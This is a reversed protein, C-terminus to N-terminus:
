TSIPAPMVIEYETHPNIIDRCTGTCRAGWVTGTHNTQLDTEQGCEECAYVRWAIKPRWNPNTDPNHEDSM